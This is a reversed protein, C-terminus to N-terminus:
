LSASRRGSWWTISHVLVPGTPLIELRRFTRDKMQSPQDFCLFHKDGRGVRYPLGLTVTSGTDGGVRGELTVRRGGTDPFVGSPLPENAFTGGLELCLEGDPGSTHFSSTPVTTWVGAPLQMSDSRITSPSSCAALSGCCFLTLVVRDFVRLRTFLDSLFAGKIALGFLTSGILGDDATSLVVQAAEHLKNIAPTASTIPLLFMSWSFAM